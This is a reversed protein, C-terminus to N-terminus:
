ERLAGSAAFLPWSCHMCVHPLNNETALKEKLADTLSNLGACPGYASVSKHRVLDTALDLANQPPTWHVVGACHVTDDQLQASFAPCTSSRTEHCANVRLLPCSM